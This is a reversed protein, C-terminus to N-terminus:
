VLCINQWFLTVSMLRRQLYQSNQTEQLPTISPKLRRPHSTEDSTFHDGINRILTDGEHGFDSPGRLTCYSEGFSAASRRLLVSTKMILIPKKTKERKHKTIKVLIKTKTKKIGKHWNDNYSTYTVSTVQRCLRIPPGQNANPTKEYLHRSTEPHKTYLSSFCM